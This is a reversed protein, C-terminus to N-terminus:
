CPLVSILRKTSVDGHGVSAHTRGQCGAHRLQLQLWVLGTDYACRHVKVGEVEEEKQEEQEKEVRLQAGLGDRKVPGGLWLSAATVAASHGCLAPKRAAQGWHGQAAAVARLM